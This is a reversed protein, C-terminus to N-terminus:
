PLLVGHRNHYELDWGYKKGGHRQGLMNLEQLRELTESLHKSVPCCHQDKRGRREAFVRRDEQWLLVFYHWRDALSSDLAAGHGSFAAVKALCGVPFVWSETCSLSQLSSELFLPQFLCFFAAPSNFACIQLPTVTNKILFSCLSKLFLLVISLRIDWLQQVSSGSILDGCHAASQYM